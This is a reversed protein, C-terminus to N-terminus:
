FIFLNLNKKLDSILSALSSCQVDSNLDIQFIFKQIFTWVLESQHPYNLNLVQFIKFCIDVARVINNFKYYTGFYYVYFEDCSVFNSGIICIFPQLKQKTNFCHDIRNQIQVYLDNLTSVYLLFSERGYAISTKIYRKRKTERDIYSSKSTPIIPSNLLTFILVNKM